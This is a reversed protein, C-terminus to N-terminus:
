PSSMVALNALRRGCSTLLNRDICGSEPDVEIAFSGWGTGFELIRDGPRVRAKRLVMHLKNLQAVDLHDESWPGNLDGAVGGTSEPFFASSYMM